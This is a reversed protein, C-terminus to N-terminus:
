EIVVLTEGESVRQGEAVLVEKVSGDAPAKIENEMKMAELLLLVDGANVHDGAKVRVAIVRGTMQAQVGGKAGARSTTPSAKTGGRAARGVGAGAVPADWTVQFERYDVLATLGSEREEEPPLQIRYPVGGATVTVYGTEDRRTIAFEHGDVVVAQGRIEVEYTRGGITVRAM